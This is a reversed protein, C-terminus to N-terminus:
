IRADNKAISEISLVGMCNKVCFLLKHARLVRRTNRLSSLQEARPKPVKPKHLTTLYLTKNM